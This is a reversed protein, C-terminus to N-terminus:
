AAASAQPPDFVFDKFAEDRAVRNARDTAARSVARAYKIVRQDMDGWESEELRVIRDVADAFTDLRLKFLNRQDSSFPMEKLRGILALFFTYFDSKKRWRTWRLDPMIGEIESVTKSFDSFLKESDEFRVEYIRYYEDLKDKKNQPGNLYCIALESIFEHDLMRRHDNSSFIGSEAWFSQDDAIKQITRIFPGWYTANRLEQENLAVVNRNLRSFIKRIEDEPMDPLIRAVFKYQYVTRREEEGLDDFRMGLWKKPIEDGELEFDNSVFEIVARIRQQGDVLIHEEKGSADGRDQMYLEPVPFTNLITDILYSKQNNTWVPNRQFPPALVLESSKHAKVFWSVTRHTTHLFKDGPSQTM